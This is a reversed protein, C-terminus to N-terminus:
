NKNLAKTLWGGKQNKNLTQLAIAARAHSIREDALDQYIQNAAKRRKIAQGPDLLAEIFNILYLKFRHQETSSKVQTNQLNNKLNDGILELETQFQETQAVPKHKVTEIANLIKQQDLVGFDQIRALDSVANKATLEDDANLQECLTYTRDWSQWRYVFDLGTGKINQLGMIRNTLGAPTHNAIISVLQNGNTYFDSVVVFRAKFWSTLQQQCKKIVTPLEVKSVSNIEKLLANILALEANDQQWQLLISQKNEDILDSRNLHAELQEALQDVNLQDINLLDVDPLAESNNLPLNVGKLMAQLRQYVQNQNSPVRLRKAIECFTAAIKEQTQAHDAESDTVSLEQIYDEWATDIYNQLGDLNSGILFHKDAGIDEALLHAFVQSRAIRDARNNVVTSVWIDPQEEIHTDYLGVRKWNSLTGFRENASMGNIFGLYRGNVHAVPYIKLVGLDPVVRDAMEKLCYEPSLDLLAGMKTVLAINYPHEEYPFRSLVDNTLLGADLWNISHMETQKERSADDLFPRMNEESTILISKKPVFKKMVRPIDVGAPGQIDEHDPYCNTITAIDDRMWQQQLIDIYRPTLGMCEWLFVDAGLKESLTVVQAQEWITAKDYPRFLFMEHLPQLATGHLFMAECGSTKSVVHYGMANFLAAKLRETGSKGRTGWGGIVLPIAARAKRMQWNARLHSGFFVASLGGCFILLHNLSNQYVSFFYNEFQRWSDMFWPPLVVPFFQQVQRDLKFPKKNHDTHPTLQVTFGLAVIAKLYADPAEADGESWNRLQAFTKFHWVLTARAKLRGWLSSPPTLWTIGESTFIKIPQTPWGQDLSSIIQDVLPLYPRWGQENEQFLPEGPVKTASCESVMNSPIHQEGYYVRGTLHSYNQRKDTASHRLEHLFRWLRFKIKHDRTVKSATIDFGFGDQAKVALLRAQSESSLNNRIVRPLRRSKGLPLDQLSLKDILKQTDNFENERSLKYVAAWLQERANAAWRRVKTEDHETHLTSIADILQTYIPQETLSDATHQLSSAQSVARFFEVSTHLTTRLVFSSQVPDLFTLIQQSCIEILDTQSVLIPLQLALSARVQDSSDNSLPTILQLVLTGPLSPLINVLGQRVFESPDKQALPVISYLPPHESAHDAIVTLLHRRLFILDDVKAHEFQRQAISLLSQPEIEAILAAAEVQTWIPQRYDQAFRYVYHITASGLYDAHNGKLRRIIFSLCKFTAHKLRDEQFHTLMNVLIPELQIQQWRQKIAQESLESFWHSTIHALRDLIFTIYHENDKNLRAYRESIADIGFYRKFSAKDGQLKKQSAGLQSSFQLIYNQRELETVANRSNSLFALYHKQHQDLTELQKKLEATLFDVISPLLESDPVSRSQMFLRLDYRCRAINKGELQQNLDTLGLCLATTLQKSLAKSNLTQTM